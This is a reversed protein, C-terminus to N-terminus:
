GLSFVDMATTLRDNSSFLVDGPAYFREPAVYCTRRGSSDFFYSFDAPNDQPLYAPKLGFDVIFVWNSCTVLVNETKIDGHCMNLEHVQSIGYLLQFTIWIKEAFTLFPRTSIRDYLNTSIYQRAMYGARETEYVIYYPLVNPIKNFLERQLILNHAYKELDM